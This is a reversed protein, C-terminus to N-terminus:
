SSAAPAAAAAAPHRRGTFLALAAMPLLLGAGIVNLWGYGAHSMVLGAAAGGVGACTNMTLDSLGQVAARAAQPVSDTLLASGSVMGASWGLGLLFLGAASQAHHPGATGALLAALSLLGAALGIVSLRGVRDALWGMVPSFAFMGAIHGSIVLGVLELGAGHHGLDVPTMVMISVMTTHSVAVTVLALRARPSAKVAALGARLSRGARTQEEPGALARATLLPDPRLLVAILAGTLVFVAGAWVFPGATEPISTGAFSRSAPASLNPGLVAGLTSAWVVVAVARARRDPAALDAAAFRAQLNASSAAGFAAMGLMLLPFSKIATALVVLAAGAAGIGYGLVLGPRRGRATMLAALPLSVAATGIVAATSAFGSLAETGSVQTALVPALAISIPVGLGGLMQSAILVASTRRQLRPLDAPGASAAPRDTGPVTTM